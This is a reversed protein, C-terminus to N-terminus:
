SGGLTGDIGDLIQPPANLVTLPLFLESFIFKLAVVDGTIKKLDVDTPGFGLPKRM